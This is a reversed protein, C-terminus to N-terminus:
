YIHLLISLSHLSPTPLINRPNKPKIQSILLHNKIITFHRFYEINSIKYCSPGLYADHLVSIVGEELTRNFREAVGNQQPIAPATKQRFIGSSATLSSFQHSSYEGKNDRLVKIIKGTQNKVLAKFQKFTDLAQNNTKM